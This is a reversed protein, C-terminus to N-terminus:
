VSVLPAASHWEALVRGFEHVRACHPIPPIDFGVPRYGRELEEFYFTMWESLAEQTAPRQRWPLFKRKTTGSPDRYLIEVQRM